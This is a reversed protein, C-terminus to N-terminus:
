SSTMQSSRHLPTSTKPRSHKTSPQDQPWRRAAVFEVYRALVEDRGLPGLAVELSSM